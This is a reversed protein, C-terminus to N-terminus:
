EVVEGGLIELASSLLEANNNTKAHRASAPPDDTRAHIRVNGGYVKAAAQEILTRNAPKSFIDRHFNFRPKITIEDAGFEVPYMQLLAALSNNKSKILVLVKAWLASDLGVGPAPPAAAPTSDPKAQAPQAKTTHRPAAPTSSSQPPATQVPVTLKVLATELALAPWDSRAVEMLADIIRAAEPGPVSRALEAAEPISAAPGGVAALLVQRWFRTLQLAVQASQAGSEALRETVALAAAADHAALARSLALVEESSTYGLLNRAAAADIEKAGGAALQDFTSIADRFGGRAADAVIDLAENTIKMGEQEAIHTLHSKIDEISIPHFNFRQTRSIITEPVKHAETTAMIFVAHAPPEELTKLLANFAEATLMHVEDIIYVKYKGSTPALNVKERLDRVADISRNSAGDIEIIDLSSSIAAQCGACQNCPKPEGTCALARALLRAVSTKGVGRPGTFLYAHVLRGSALAAQLTKVVHDQGIVESFNGSRYKRYLAQDAVAGV